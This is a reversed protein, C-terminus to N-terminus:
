KNYISKSLNLMYSVRVHLIGLIHQHSRMLNEVMEDRRRDREEAVSDSAVHSHVHPRPLPSVLVGDPMVAV